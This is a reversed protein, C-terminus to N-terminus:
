IPKRIRFKSSTLVAFAGPLEEAHEGVVAGVLVARDGTELDGLRLLLVGTTLMGLRFVLEGFDKDATVLVAGRANAEGL